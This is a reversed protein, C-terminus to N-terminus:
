NNTFYLDGEPCKLHLTPKLALVAHAVRQTGILVDELCFGKSRLEGRRATLVQVTNTMGVLRRLELGNIELGSFKYPLNQSRMFDRSVGIGDLVENASCSTKEGRAVDGAAVPKAEPLVVSLDDLTLINFAGLTYIGYERKRVTCRACRVFDVGYYGYRNLRLDEAVTRKYVKKLTPAAPERLYDLAQPIFLTGVAAILFLIIYLVIKM